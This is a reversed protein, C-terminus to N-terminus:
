GRLMVMTMAVLSFSPLALPTSPRFAASAVGSSASVACSSSVGSCWSASCCALVVIRKHIKTVVVTLVVAVVVLVMSIVSKVVLEQLEACAFQPQLGCKRLGLGFGLILRHGLLRHLLCGLLVTKPSPSLM